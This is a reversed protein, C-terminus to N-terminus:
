FDEINWNKNLEKLRELRYFWKILKSDKRRINFYNKKIFFM